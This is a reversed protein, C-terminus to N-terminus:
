TSCALAAPLLSPQTRAEMSSMCAPLEATDPLAVPRWAVPPPILVASVRPTRLRLGRLLRWARMMPMLWYASLSVGGRGPARMSRSDAVCIAVAMCTGPLLM